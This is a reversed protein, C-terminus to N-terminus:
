ERDISPRVADLEQVQRALDDLQRKYVNSIGTHQFIAAQYDRFQNIQEAYERMALQWGSEDGIGNIKIEAWKTVPVNDVGAPKAWFIGGM